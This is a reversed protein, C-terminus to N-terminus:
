SSSAKAARAKAATEVKKWGFFSTVGVMVASVLVSMWQQGSILGTGIATLVSMGLALWKDASPPIFQRGFMRILVVVMNALAGFFVAWQGNKAATVLIEVLAAPDQAGPATTATEVQAQIQTTLWLAAYGIM